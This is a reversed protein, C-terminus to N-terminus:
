TCKKKKKKKLFRIKIGTWDADIACRNKAGTLHFCCIQHDFYIIKSYETRVAARSTGPVNKQNEHKRGVWGKVYRFECAYHPLTAREVPRLNDKFEM